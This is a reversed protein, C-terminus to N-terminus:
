YKKLLPLEPYRKMMDISQAPPGDVILMDFKNEPNFGELDYWEWDNADIKVNTLQRTQITVQKNIDHIDLLKKTKSSFEEKHDISLLKGLKRKKLFRGIVVTSLGSGLEIINEINNEEIQLLIHKLFDPSAAWTMMDPLPKEPLVSFYISFLDETQRYYNDNKRKLISIQFNIRRYIKFMVLIIFSVSLSIIFILYYELELIYLLLGIAFLLGFTAIVFLKDKRKLM